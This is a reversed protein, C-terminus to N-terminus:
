LKLKAMLNSIFGKIGSKKPEEWAPQVPTQGGYGQNYGRYPYGQAPPMPRQPQSQFQPQPQPQRFGQPPYGPAMYGQGGFSSNMPQAYGQPMQFGGQVGYGSVSRQFGQGWLPTRSFQGPSIPEQFSQNQQPMVQPQHNGFINGLQM